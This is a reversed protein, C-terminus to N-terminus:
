GLVIGPMVQFQFELSVIWAKQLCGGGGGRSELSVIKLLQVSKTKFVKQKTFTIEVVTVFGQM